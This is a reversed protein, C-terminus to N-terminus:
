DKVFMFYLWAVLFVGLAVSGLSVEIPCDAFTRLTCATTM